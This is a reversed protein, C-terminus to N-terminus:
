NINTLFRNFSEKAESLTLGGCVHEGGGSKTWVGWDKLVDCKIIIYPLERGDLHPIYGKEAEDSFAYKYSGRKYTIGNM